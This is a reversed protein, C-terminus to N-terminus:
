WDRPFGEVDKVSVFKGEADFTFVQNMIKTETRPSGYGEKGPFKAFYKYRISSDGNATKEVPGWEVESGGEMTERLDDRPPTKCLADSRCTGQDQRGICVHDPAQGGDHRRRVTGGMATDYAARLDFVNSQDFTVDVSEGKKVEVPICWCVPKGEIDVTKTIVWRKGPRSNSM